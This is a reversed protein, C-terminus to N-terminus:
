CHMRMCTKDCLCVPRSYKFVCMCVCVRRSVYRQERHGTNHVTNHVHMSTRMNRNSIKECDFLAPCGGGKVEGEGGM